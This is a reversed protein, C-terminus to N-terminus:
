PLINYWFSKSKYSMKEEDSLNGIIPLSDPISIDYWGTYSTGIPIIRKAGEFDDLYAISRSGDTAITSKKTNPDPNIYAFEGKLNMSSMTKTSIINDLRNADSSITTVAFLIVILVTLILRFNITKNTKM